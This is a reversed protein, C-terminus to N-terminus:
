RSWRTREAIEKAVRAAVIALFVGREDRELKEMSSTILERLQTQAIQLRTDTRGGHPKSFEPGTIMNTAPREPPRGPGNM